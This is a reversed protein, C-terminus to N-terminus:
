RYIIYVLNDKIALTNYRYNSKKFEIINLRKSLNADKIKRIEKIASKFGPM